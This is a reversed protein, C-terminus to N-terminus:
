LPRRGADSAASVPTLLTSTRAMTVLENEMVMNSQPQLTSLRQAWRGRMGDHGSLTTDWAGVHFTAWPGGRREEVESSGALNLRGGSSLRGTLNARIQLFGPLLFTARIESLDNGTQLVELQIPFDFMDFEYGTCVGPAADCGNVVFRGVWTGRYDNVVQVSRTAGVGEHAAALTTTGHARGDLRGANDVTAVDSNGTSWTPTVSRSTGDSLTATATYTGSSGTLLADGGNIVLSAIMPSTTTPPSPAAPNAKENCGAAIAAVLVVGTLRVSRM